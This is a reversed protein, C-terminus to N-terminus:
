GVDIIQVVRDVMAIRGDGLPLARLDHSSWRPAPWSKVVELTGDTGVALAVLRSRGSAWDALGTLALREDPLYTFARPESSALFDVHRSFGITDTRAVKALDDLDFLAAQGGLDVGAPTANRGLGLLQGDGVPHLYASFGRIKLEGTVTPDTPESLDLTYLPDTQRFTVVVAFDGFWRVSQISERPGLGTIRGVTRLQEGDEELVAVANERPNWTDGLAIAVRLRGDHESFSWRDRVTGAVQGSAAYTTAAGALAFAHVETHPGRSGSSGDRGVLVPDWWTTGMTAVYLRDASSYVLDGAAAVAVADMDAPAAVDLTLVSITGFGAPKEPHRVEACDLLNREDQGPESVGPLWEELPLDRVVQRNTRTAEVPTRERTPRVFDLEPLGSDTVVRVIGDGFERAAVLAGDVRQHSTIVPAGPTSVDVSVLDTEASASGGWPAVRSTSPMPGGWTGTQWSNTQHTSVVLLTDDVLLLERPDWRPGPLRIEASRRAEDARVDVVLLRPGHVRYVTQGDTKAVDPEDVGSEQINTGTASNGVADGADVDTLQGRTLPVPEAAGEAFAQDRTMAPPGFGWPGVQPLAADVYWGRLEACDEFAPLREAGAASPPEALLVAGVGTTFLACAAVGATAGLGIGAFRRPGTAM